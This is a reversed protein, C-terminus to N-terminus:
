NNQTSVNGGICKKLGEFLSIKSSDEEDKLMERKGGNRGESKEINDKLM